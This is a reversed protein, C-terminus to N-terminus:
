CGNPKSIRIRVKDLIIKKSGYQASVKVVFDDLNLTLNKFIDDPKLMPNDELCQKISDVYTEQSRKFTCQPLLQTLHNGKSVYFDPECLTIYPFEIYHISNEGMTHRIETAVPEAIYKEFSGISWYIFIAAFIVLAAFSTINSFTDM